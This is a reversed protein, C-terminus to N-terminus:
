AEAEAMAAMAVVCVAVVVLATKGGILEAIVSFLWLNVAVLALLICMVVLAVLLLETIAKCLSKM